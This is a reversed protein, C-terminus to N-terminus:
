KADGKAPLEGPREALMAYTRLEDALAHAEVPSLFFGLPYWRMLAKEPTMAVMYKGCEQMELFVTFARPVAPQDPKVTETSNSSSKSWFERIKDQEIKENCDPCRVGWTGNTDTEVLDWGEPIVDFLRNETRDCDCCIFTHLQSPTRQRGKAAPKDLTDSM